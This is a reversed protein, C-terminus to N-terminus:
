SDSNTLVVRCDFPLTPNWASSWVDGVGKQFYNAWFLHVTIFSYQAHGLYYTYIVQSTHGDLITSM